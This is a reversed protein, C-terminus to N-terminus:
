GAAEFVLRADVRGAAEKAEFVSTVPMVGHRTELTELWRMIDDFSADELWVGVRQQGDPQVRKLAPGLRGSRATRDVLSLMSQGSPAQVRNGATARLQRIEQEAGRMWVLVSEQQATSARLADVRKELPEWAGLYLLLVLLVVSAVILLHQERPALSDFWAKM